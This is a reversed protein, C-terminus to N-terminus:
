KGKREEDKWYSDRGGETERERDRDTEPQRATERQREKQPSCPSSKIQTM